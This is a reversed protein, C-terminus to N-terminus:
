MQPLGPCLADSHLDLGYCFPLLLKVQPSALTVLYGSLVLILM